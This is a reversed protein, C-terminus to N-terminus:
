LPKKNNLKKKLPDGIKNLRRTNITLQNVQLPKTSRIALMTLFLGMATSIIKPLLKYIVAKIM